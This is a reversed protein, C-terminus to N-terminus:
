GEVVQVITLENETPATAATLVVKGGLWRPFHEIPGFVVKSKVPVDYELATGDAAAVKAWIETTGGTFKVPNETATSFTGTGLGSAEATFGAFEDDAIAAAILTATNKDADPIFTEDSAIMGLTIVITKGVLEVSLDSAEEVEPVVIEVTYDNGAVGADEATITVVGDAGEGIDASANTDDVRILHELTVTLAPESDVAILIPRTALPIKVEASEIEGDWEIAKNALIRQNAEAWSKPM